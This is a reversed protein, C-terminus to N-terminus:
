KKKKLVQITVKPYNTSLYTYLKMGSEEGVAVKLKNSHEKLLDKGIEQPQGTITLKTMKLCYEFARAGLNEIGTGITVQKMQMCRMFAGEGIIRVSDPVTISGLRVCYSFAREGIEELQANKEFSISTLADNALFAEKEITKLSAPIKLSRLKSASKGKGFQQMAYTEEFAFAREGISELGEPLTMSGVPCKYFAEKAIRKLKKPLTVTLLKTSYACLRESIEELNAPFKLTKLGSAYFARTGIFTVSDPIKLETVGCNAFAEKGIFELEPCLTLATLAKCYYFARDGIIRIGNKPLKVTELKRCQEFVSRGIETIGTPLTISKLESCGSFAEEGIETMTKAPIVVEKLGTCNQFAHAGIKTLTSPLTIKNLTELGAFASDAIEEVGEPVVLEYVRDDNTYLGARLVRDAPATAASIEKSKMYSKQVYYQYMQDASSGPYCAITLTPQGFNVRDRYYDSWNDPNKKDYDSATGQIEGKELKAYYAAFGDDYGFIGVGLETAISNFTLKKLGTDGDPNFANNGIKKLSAPFVIEKLRHSFFAQEGIEELGENLTLGTIQCYAFAQDGVTRVADPLKVRGLKRCQYFGRKGIRTLGAPLKPFVLSSCKSFAEDGIETVGDPITISKLAKCERFAGYGIAEVSKPINIATMASFFEFAQQEIAKLGDPLTVKKVARIKAYDPKGQPARAVMTVMIGDVEAPIKLNTGEISFGTIVATGDELIGYDWQGTKDKRIEDPCHWGATQMEEAEAHIMPVSLMLIMAALLVTLFRCEKKM